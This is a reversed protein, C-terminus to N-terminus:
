SAESEMTDMMVFAGAPTPVVYQVFGNADLPTEPFAARFNDRADHNGVLLHCPIDLGDLLSRLDRYAAPEGLYAFDGTLVACIADAHHRNIDAICRGLCDARQQAAPHDSTPALIHTDSIQAILM